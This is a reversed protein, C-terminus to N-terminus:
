VVEPDSVLLIVYISKPGADICTSAWIVRCAFIRINWIKWNRLLTKMSQMASM